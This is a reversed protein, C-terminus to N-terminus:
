SHAYVLPKYVLHVKDFFGLILGKTLTPIYVCEHVCVSCVWVFVCLVCVCMRICTCMCMCVCCVNVSVVSDYIKKWDGSQLTFKIRLHKFKCYCENSTHYM